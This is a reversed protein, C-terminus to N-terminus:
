FKQIYKRKRGKENGGCHCLKAVNFFFSLSFFHTSTSDKAFTYNQKITNKHLVFASRVPSRPYTHPMTRGNNGCVRSISRQFIDDWNANVSITATPIGLTNQIHFRPPQAPPPIFLYNFLTRRYVSM